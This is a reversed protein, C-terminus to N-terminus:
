CKMVKRVVVPAYDLSLIQVIKYFVTIILPHFYSRIGQTWEWTLHGYGFVFKHAVELSQWYEDPVFCTQVLFVSLLRICLFILYVDLNEM